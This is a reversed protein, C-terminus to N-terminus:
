HDTMWSRPSATMRVAAVLTKDDGSQDDLATLFRHIENVSAEASEVYATLDEFFPVFPDATALNSLVKFRLGDTCLFVSDVDAIPELTVRLQEMATDDTVFSTENVYEFRPAPAITRYEGKRGLVAITDGIQGVCAVTNTLIAVGLTTAFDAAERDEAAALMAIQKRTDRVILQPWTRPDDHRGNRACARAITLAQEVALSAGRKSLPRSGAGDAVALCTVEPAVQWSSADECGTGAAQHNNGTVSAGIVKWM